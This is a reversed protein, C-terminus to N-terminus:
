LFEQIFRSPQQHQQRRERTREYPGGGIRGASTQKGFLVVAMCFATWLKRQSERAEIRSTHGTPLCWIGPFKALRKVAAKYNKWPHIEVPAHVPIENSRAFSTLGSDEQQSPDVNNIRFLEDYRVARRQWLELKRWLGKLKECLM